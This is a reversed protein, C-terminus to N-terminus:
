ASPEKSALPVRIVRGAQGVLTLRGAHIRAAFIREDFPM